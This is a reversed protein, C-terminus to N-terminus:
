SIFFVIWVSKRDMSGRSRLYELKRVFHKGMALTTKWFWILLYSYRLSCPLWDSWAADIISVVSLQTMLENSDSQDVSPTMLRFYNTAECKLIFTTRYSFNLKCQILFYIKPLHFIGKVNRPCFCRVSKRFGKRKWRQYQTVMPIKISLSVLSM